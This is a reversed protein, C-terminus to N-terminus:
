RSEGGSREIKSDLYGAERMLRVLLARVRASDADLAARRREGGERLAKDGRCDKVLKTLFKEWDEAAPLVERVASPTSSHQEWLAHFRDLSEQYGDRLVPSGSLYSRAIANRLGRHHYAPVFLAGIKDYLRKQKAGPVPAKFSRWDDTLDHLIGLCEVDPMEMDQGSCWADYLTVGPIVTGERDSYAHAFATLVDRQSGDDLAREVLAEALDLRPPFGALANEFIREPDDVDPGHRLTGGVYDYTWASRLRRAPVKEFFKKRARDAAAGPSMPRRAIPQAPAHVQPDYTPAPELEPWTGPDREESEIVFKVLRLQFTDLWEAEARFWEILDARQAPELRRWAVRLDNDSPDEPVRPDAPVAATLGFSALLLVPLALLARRPLRM